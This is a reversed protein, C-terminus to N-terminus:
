DAEVSGNRCPSVSFNIRHWDSVPRLPPESWMQEEMGKSPDGQLCFQVLLSHITLIFGHINFTLNNFPWFGSFLTFFKRHFCDVSVSFPFMVFLLSLHQSFPGFIDINDMLRIVIFSTTGKTEEEKDRCTKRPFLSGSM